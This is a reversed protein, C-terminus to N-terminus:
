AYRRETRRGDGEKRLTHTSIGIVHASVDFKVDGEKRLTHTSIVWLRDPIIVVM